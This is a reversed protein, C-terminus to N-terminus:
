SLPNSTAPQLSRSIQAPNVHKATRLAYSIEREWLGFSRADLARYIKHFPPRQQGLEGHGPEKAHNM